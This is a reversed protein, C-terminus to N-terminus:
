HFRSYKARIKAINRVEVVRELSKIKIVKRKETMVIDLPVNKERVKMEIPEESEQLGEKKIEKLTQKIEDGVVEAVEWEDEYDLMTKEEEIHEEIRLLWKKEKIIKGYSLIKIVSELAILGFVIYMSYPIIRSLLYLLIYYVAVGSEWVLGHEAYRESQGIIYTCMTWAVWRILSLVLYLLMPIFSTAQLEPNLGLRVPYYLLLSIIAYGLWIVFVGWRCYIAQHYAERRDKEGISRCIKIAVVNVYAFFVGNLIDLVNEFYCYQNYLITNSKLIFLSLFIYGIEFVIESGARAIITKFESKGLKIHEPKLINISYKKNKLLALYAFVVSVVGAAIYVISILRLMLVSAVVLILFGLITLFSKIATIIMQWGFLGLKKLIDAIYQAIASIFFSILMLYYFLLDVEFDLALWSKLVFTPFACLILTFVLNVVLSFAFGIKIYKRYKEPDAINLNAFMGFGESCGFSIMEGIYSLTLIANFYTLENLKLRNAIIGSVILYIGVVLYKIILWKSEKFNAIFEKWFKKKLLIM